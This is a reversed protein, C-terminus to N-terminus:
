AQGDRRIRFEIPQDAKKSIAEIVQSRFVMRQGDVALIM